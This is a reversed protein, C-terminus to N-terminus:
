KLTQSFGHKPVASKDPPTGRILDDRLFSVCYLKNNPSSSWKTLKNAALDKKKKKEM